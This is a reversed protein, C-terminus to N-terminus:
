AKVLQLQEFAGGLVDQSPWGLWKELLTAYVQRFDIAFRVDGDELDTLSPHKGVLGGHVKRGFCFMPAAAGHDTGESANEALRRGFESFCMTLVRDGQGTAALDHHFAAVSDGLQKLLAAHANPQQSHTDFGDLAVYFVRTKLGGQILQAILRLKAALGSDPYAGSTPLQRAAEEVKQSAVLASSMSTQLFGLLPDEHARPADVLGALSKSVADKGHLQFEELKQISPSSVRHGILARPTAETPRCPQM